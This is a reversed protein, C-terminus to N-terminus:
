QHLTLKHNTYFSRQTTHQLPLNLIQSSLRGFQLNITCITSFVTTFDLRLDSNPTNTRTIAALYSFLTSGLRQWKTDNARSGHLTRCCRPPLVSARELPTPRNTVDATTTPKIQIIPSILRPVVAVAFITRKLLHHAHCIKCSQSPSM